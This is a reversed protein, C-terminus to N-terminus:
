FECFRNFNFHELLFISWSYCESSNILLISLMKVPKAHIRFVVVLRFQEVHLATYLCVKISKWAIVLDYSALSITSFSILAMRPILNGERQAFENSEWCSCFLFSVAMPEFFCHRWKLGILSGVRPQLTPCSVVNARSLEICLDPLTAHCSVDFDAPATASAHPNAPARGTHQPCEM